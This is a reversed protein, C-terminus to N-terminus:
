HPASRANRTARPAFNVMARARDTLRFAEPWVIKISVPRVATIPKVHFPLGEYSTDLAPRQVLISYGLKRGVLSRTLEFDTTRYRINPVVNAQEFLSMTHSSSPPADLLILPDEALEPLSVEARDALRHERPLLVHIPAKFLEVSHLGPRLDMDYVVALDLEGGFLRDQLVDQAAEVFDLQVKPHDAAFGELLVPLITPAVTRYCGVVLPGALETGGSSTSLELEEAADLLGPARSYLFTGAPTLTVGHAKRRVTLQVKLIRELETVAASVASQSVHLKDSAASIAGTEAVAVFYSLQRLTFRSM